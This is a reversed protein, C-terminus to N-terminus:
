ATPEGQKSVQLTFTVVRDSNDMAAAWSDGTLLTLGSLGTITTPDGDATDAEEPFPLAGAMELTLDAAGAVPLLLLLFFLVCAQLRAGRTPYAELRATM